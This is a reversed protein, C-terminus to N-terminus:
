RIVPNVDKLRACIDLRASHQVLNQHLPSELLLLGRLVHGGLSAKRNDSKKLDVHKKCRVVLTSVGSNGAFPLILVFTKKNLNSLLHQKPPRM